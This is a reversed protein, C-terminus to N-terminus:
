TKQGAVTLLNQKATINIYDSSFVAFALRIAFSDGKRVIDYPPFGGEQEFRKQFESLIDFLSEFGVSSRSIKLLRLQSYGSWQAVHTRAARRVKRRGGCRAPGIKGIV